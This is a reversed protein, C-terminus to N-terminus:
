LRSQAALVPRLVEQWAPGEQTANLPSGWAMDLLGRYVDGDERGLASHLLYDPFAFADVLAVSNPRLASLLLRHRRRL